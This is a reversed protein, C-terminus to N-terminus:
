RCTRGNSSFSDNVITKPSGLNVFMRSLAARVSRPLVFRYGKTVPDLFWKDVQRNFAFVKRNTSELPDPYEFTGAEFEEDFLDDFLPDPEEEAM